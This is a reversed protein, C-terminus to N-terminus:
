GGAPVPHRGAPATSAARRDLVRRYVQSQEDALPGWRM